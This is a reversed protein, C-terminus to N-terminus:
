QKLSLIYAIINNRDGPQIVFDPMDRHPTQLLVALAMGTLEPKNSLAQFTPANSIPSEIYDKEVAHCQSCNADAYSFGAAVDGPEEASSLPPTMFQLLVLTKALAFKM